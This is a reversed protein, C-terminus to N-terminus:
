PRETRIRYIAQLGPQTCSADVFLVNGPVVQKAHGGQSWLLRLTAGGDKQFYEVKIPVAKGATLRVGGGGREHPGHVSWDDVVKCGAVWVRVGDDSRTYFRASGSRRPRLYGTWVGTFDDPPIKGGPSGRRWDFDITRDVRVVPDVRLFEWATIPSPLVDPSKGFARARVATNNNLVIPGTYTPSAATPESGDLTYHIAQSPAPTTTVKVSGEFYTEPPWLLPAIAQAPGTLRLLVGQGPRLSPLVTKGAPDRPCAAWKRQDPDFAHVTRVHSAFAVRPSRVATDPKDTRKDVVVVLMNERLGNVYAAEPVLVGALLADDMQEILRGAAPRWAVPPVDAKGTHFVGLSRHGLLQRACPLVRAHTQQMPRYMHHPKYPGKWGGCDLVGGVHFYWFGQAGYALATWCQFRLDAPEVVNCALIPWAALNYRNAEDRDSELQRCFYYRLRPQRTKRWHLLERTGRKAGRPIKLAYNQSSLVPMPTKGQGAAYPNTSMWALAGPDETKLYESIAVTYDHLGCNDNLLYGVVRPHRGYQGFLWKFQGLRAYRGYRGDRPDAPYDPGWAESSHKIAHLIMPMQMKDAAALWHKAAAVECSKFITLGLDKCHRFYDNAAAQQAEATGSQAIPPTRWIGVAFDKFRFRQMCQLVKPAPGSSPPEARVPFTALLLIALIGKAPPIKM